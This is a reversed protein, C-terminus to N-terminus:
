IRDIKLIFFLVFFSIIIILYKLFNKPKNESSIEWSNNDLIKGPSNETTLIGEIDLLSLPTIKLKQNKEGLIGTITFNTEEILNKNPIGTNKKIEILIEKEGDDLYIQNTKNQTIEGKIKKLQGIQGTQLQSIKEIQPTPINNESSLIKIDEINKTKIKYNLSPKVGTISLEGKIKIQDGIKLQPFLKNYSYIQIGYINSDNKYQDHIYFYQSGLVNPLVTVLGIIIIEDGNKYDKVNNLNISYTEAKNNTAPTNNKKNSTEKPTKIKIISGQSNKIELSNKQISFDQFNNPPNNTAIRKLAQNKEPNTSPKEFFDEVEGIGLKDIINKEQDYLLITNNKSLSATSSYKLDCAIQSCFEPHSILFYSKAPIIGTFNKTSILASENGKATKKKLSFGSLNIECNNPNYLEIFEHRVNSSQELMVQNILINENKAQTQTFSLIFFIFFFLVLKRM